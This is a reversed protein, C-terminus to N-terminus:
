RMESEKVLEHAKIGEKSSKGRIEGEWEVGKGERVKGEEERGMAEWGMGKKYGEM